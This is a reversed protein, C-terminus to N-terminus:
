DWMLIPLLFFLQGTHGEELRKPEISPIGEGGASGAGLGEGSGKKSPM